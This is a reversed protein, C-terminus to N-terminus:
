GLMACNERVNIFVNSILLLKLGSSSHFEFLDGRYGLSRMSYDPQLNKRCSLVLRSGNLAM